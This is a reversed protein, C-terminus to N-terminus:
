CISLGVANLREQQRSCRSLSQNANLWLALKSAYWSTCTYCYLDTLRWLKEQLCKEHIFTSICISHNCTQRDTHRHTDTQRHRHKNTHFCASITHFNRNCSATIWCTKSPLRTLSKTKEDFTWMTIYVTIIEISKVTSQRILSQSVSHNSTRFISPPYVSQHSTPKSAGHSPPQNTSLEWHTTVNSYYLPINTLFQLKWVGKCEVSGNPPRCQLIAMGSLHVSPHISQNISQCNETPPRTTLLSHNTTTNLVQVWDVALYGSCWGLRFEDLGFKGVCDEPLDPLQRVDVAISHEVSVLESESHM